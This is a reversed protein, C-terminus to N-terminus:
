SSSALICFRCSGEEAQEGQSEYPADTMAREGARFNSLSRRREPLLQAEEDGQQKNRRTSFVDDSFAPQRLMFYEHKATPTM